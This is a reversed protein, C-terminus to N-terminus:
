DLFNKIKLPTRYNIPSIKCGYARGSEHIIQGNGIYIAVHNVHGSSSGYFVLDGPKAQALTVTRGMKSDALDYSTRPLKSTNIGVKKYVAHCFGSCDAGTSLSMGGWVYKLGIHKKAEAIIASRLSSIGVGSSGDIVSSIPSAKIWDYGVKVFEKSVYGELDDCYAKVWLSNDDDKSIVCEEIVDLAEGSNVTAIINDNTSTDPESRFNVTGATVTALLKTLQKAKAKGQEGMFLYDTSVYGSVSGSKIKAWGNESSEVICMGNKPLIGVIGFDTGAGSRINLSDNVNAIAINEPITVPEAYLKSTDNDESKEYYKNLYFSLGGLAREGSIIEAKAEGTNMMFVFLLVALAVINAKLIKNLKM